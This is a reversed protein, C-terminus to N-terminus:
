FNITISDGARWRLSRFKTGEPAEFVMWGDIGMDKLLEFSGDIFLMSREEVLARDGMDEVVIQAAQYAVDEDQSNKAGCRYEWVVTDDFTRSYSEGPSISIQGEDAADFQLIHDVKGDNVWSVEMGLSIYMRNPDFCQGQEMHVTAETRGRLDQYLRASLDIPFYSDRLIGRLEAAQQDVNLIASIATHNEVMMRVLVLELGDASPVMRWHRIVGEPDITAYRLEPVRDINVVKLHLTRGQFYKGFGSPSGSCAALALVTFILPVFFILRRLQM